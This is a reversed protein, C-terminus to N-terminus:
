QAQSRGKRHIRAKYIIVGTSTGYIGDRKLHRCVTEKGAGIEERSFQDYIATVSGFYYHRELYEAPLEVHIITDGTRMDYANLLEM